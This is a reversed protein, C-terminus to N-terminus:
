HIESLWINKNFCSVHHGLHRTALKFTEDFIQWIRTCVIHLSLPQIRIFAMVSSDFNITKLKISKYSWWYQAGCEWRPLKNNIWCVPFIIQALTYSRSRSVLDRGEQQHDQTHLHTYRSCLFSQNTIVTLQRVRAWLTLFTRTWIWRRGTTVDPSQQYCSLNGLVQLLVDCTLILM